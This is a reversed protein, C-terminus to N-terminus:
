VKETSRSRFCLPSIGKYQRFVTSFYGPSSFGLEYAIESVSASTNSLLWEARVIKKRVIYESPPIGTEEKFLHKFRSLSLNCIDSLEELSNIETLHVDIHRLVESICKRCAPRYADGAIQMVELLLSVALNDIMITNLTGPPSFYRKMIKQLLSEIRLSSKFLRTPLSLLGGFIEFANTPSLGLWTKDPSPRKLVIWYLIGKEEPGDGTGHVEDPFTMFIDGGKVEYRDEGIFYTQSGKVMFCIEIMDPHVHTPLVPQVNVYNYYGFEDFDDIGHIGMDM